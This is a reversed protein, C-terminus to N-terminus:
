HNRFREKEIENGGLNGIRVINLSMMFSITQFITLSEVSARESKVYVITCM